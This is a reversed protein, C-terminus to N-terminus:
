DLVKVTLPSSLLMVNLPKLDRHVIGREHAYEVAGALQRAVLLAEPLPLPGRKLVLDLTDGAVYELILFRRGEVEELGYIAAIGPHNLSALTRAEQEFRSLREPDEALGEPLAKVAVERDLKTDRALYVIGMGGRGIERVVDFHGLRRPEGSDPM